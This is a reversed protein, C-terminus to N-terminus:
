AAERPYYRYRRPAVEVRRVDGRAHLKSLRTRADRDRIARAADRPTVGGPQTRVYALLREMRCASETM